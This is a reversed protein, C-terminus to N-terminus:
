RIHNLFERALNELNRQLLLKLKLAKLGNKKTDSIWKKSIKKGTEPAESLMKSFFEPQEMLNEFFLSILGSIILLNCLLPFAKVGCRTNGEQEEVKTGWPVFIEYLEAKM